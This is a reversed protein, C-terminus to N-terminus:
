KDKKSQKAGLIKLEMYDNNAEKLKRDTVIACSLKGGAYDTLVLHGPTEPDKLLRGLEEVLFEADQQTLYVGVDRVYRMESFDILKM